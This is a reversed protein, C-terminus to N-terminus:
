QSYRAAEHTAIREGYLWDGSQLCEVVMHTAHKGRVIVYQVDQNKKGRETQTTGSETLERLTKLADRELVTSM